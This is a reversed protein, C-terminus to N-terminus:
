LNTILGKAAMRPAHPGLCLACVVINLSCGLVGTQEKDSLYFYIYIYTPRESTTHLDGAMNSAFETRGGRPWPRFDGLERVRSQCSSVPGKGQHLFSSLSASKSKPGLVLSDRMSYTKLGSCVSFDLAFIPTFFYTLGITLFPLQPLAKEPSHHDISTLPRRLTRELLFPWVHHALLPLPISEEHPSLKCNVCVCM